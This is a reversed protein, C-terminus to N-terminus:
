KKCAGVSINDKNKEIFKKGIGKVKELESINTFCHAKRYAIISDAKKSGIGKLQMLQSKDANNIDVSSFLFSVMVLLSLLVKM